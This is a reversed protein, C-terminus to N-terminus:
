FAEKCSFILSVSFTYSDSDFTPQFGEAFQATYVKDNWDSTIELFPTSILEEILALNEKIPNAIILNLSIVKGSFNIRNGLVSGNAFARPRAIATALGPEILGKVGNKAVWVGPTAGVVDIGNTPAVLTKTGNSISIWKFPLVQSM